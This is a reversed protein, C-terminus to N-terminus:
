NQLACINSALLKHLSRVFAVALDPKFVREIVVLPVKVTLGNLVFVSLFNLSIFLRPLCMMVEDADCSYLSQM